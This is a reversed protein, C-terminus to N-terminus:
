VSLTELHSSAFMICYISTSVTIVQCKGYDSWEHDNRIYWSGNSHCQKTVRGFCNPMFEFFYVHPPCYHEAISNASTEPWCSFGDWTPPCKLDNENAQQDILFNTGPVIQQKRLSSLNDRCCKIAESCCEVWKTFAQEDRFTDRIVDTQNAYITPNTANYLFAIVPEDRNRPLYKQVGLKAKFLESPM